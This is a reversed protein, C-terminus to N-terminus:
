KVRKYNEAPDAARGPWKVEPFFGGEGMSDLAFVHTRKIKV